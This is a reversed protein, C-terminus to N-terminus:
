NNGWFLEHTFDLKPKSLNISIKTSYQIESRIWYQNEVIQSHPKIGPDEPFVQLNFGFYKTANRTKSIVVNALTAM